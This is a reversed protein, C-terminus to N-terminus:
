HKIRRRRYIENCVLVQALGQLYAQEMEEQLGASEVAEAGGHGGAGKDMDSLIKAVAEGLNQLSVRDPYEDYIMSGDYDMKDLIEEVRRQWKGLLTPYTRRLYEFDRTAVDEGPFEQAKRICPYDPYAMFFPMPTGTPLLYKIQPQFDM